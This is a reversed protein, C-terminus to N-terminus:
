EYFETMAEIVKQLDNPIFDEEFMGIPSKAPFLVGNVMSRKTIFGYNPNGEEDFKCISCLYLPVVEQISYQTDLMKGVTSIKQEVISGDSVVDELHLM